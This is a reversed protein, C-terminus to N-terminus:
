LWWAWHDTGPRRLGGPHGPATMRLGGRTATGGILTVRWACGSLSWLRSRIWPTACRKEAAGRLSACM